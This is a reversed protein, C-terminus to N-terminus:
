GVTEGEAAGLPVVAMSEARAAGDLRGDAGQGAATGPQRWGDVQVEGIGGAVQVMYRPRAPTEAGVVEQAVREPKPPDIGGQEEAPAVLGTSERRREGLIKCAM